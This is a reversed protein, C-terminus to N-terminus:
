VISGSIHEIKIKLFPDPFVKEMENQSYNEIIQGFTIAQIAKSRSINTM